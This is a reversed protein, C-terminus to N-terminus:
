SAQPVQSEDADADAVPRALDIEALFEAIADAVAGAARRPLHHGAGEVLILRADPLMEALRHSTKVPVVRDAPDAILLVPV